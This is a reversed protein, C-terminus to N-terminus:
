SCFLNTQVPSSSAQISSPLDASRGHVDFWSFYQMGVLGALLKTIGPSKPKQSEADKLLPSREDPM